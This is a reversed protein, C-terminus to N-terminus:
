SVAAQAHTPEVAESATKLFSGLLDGVVEAAEDLLLREVGRGEVVDLFRQDRGIEARFGRVPNALRDGGAPEFLEVLAPKARDEGFVRHGDQLAAQVADAFRVPQRLNDVWYAADFIPQARPDDLTASYYPVTPTMPTLAALEDALDPLIPDVHPSHSAVDVAIERAMVDRREWAAVLERVTEPAGGIVTAQPSTIVSVVVDNVGRAALEDRVQHAPLEVSAM